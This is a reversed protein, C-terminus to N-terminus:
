NPLPEVVRGEVEIAGDKKGMDEANRSVEGPWRTAAWGRRLCGGTGGRPSADCSTRSACRQAPFRRLYRCVCQFWRTARASLVSYTRTM